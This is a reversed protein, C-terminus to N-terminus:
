EGAQGELIVDVYRLRWTPVTGAELLSRGSAGTRQVTVLFRYRGDKAFREIDKATVTVTGSVSDFTGLEVRGAAQDGRRTWGPRLGFVQMRNDAARLNIRLTANARSIPGTAPPFAAEILLRGNRQTRLFREHITDWTGTGLADFETRVLGAPVRVTTGARPANLQLPCTIVSWGRTDAVEDGPTVPLKRCFPTYAILTPRDMARVRASPVTLLRRLLDNRLRDTPTHTLKGTFEGGAGSHPADPSPYVVRGLLDDDDMRVNAQGEAAIAPLRYTRRGALLVVGTVAEPLHNRVTGVLGAPGLTVRAELPEGASTADTTLARTAGGPIDEAPLYM